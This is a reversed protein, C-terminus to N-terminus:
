EQKLLSLLVLIQSHADTLRMQEGATFMPCNPLLEAHRLWQLKENIAELELKARDVSVYGTAINKPYLTDYIRKRRAKIEEDPFGQNLPIRPM